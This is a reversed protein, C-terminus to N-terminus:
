QRIIENFYQVISNLQDLPTNGYTWQSEAINLKNLFKKFNQGEGKVADILLNGGAEFYPIFVSGKAVIQGSLLGFIKNAAEGREEFGINRQKEWDHPLSVDLEKAHTNIQGIIKEPNEPTGFLYDMLLFSLLFARAQLIEPHAERFSGIFDSLKKQFAGAMQTKKGILSLCSPRM